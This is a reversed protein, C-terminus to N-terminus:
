ERLIRAANEGLIAAVEGKTFSIGAEDVIDPPETFAKVWSPQGGSFLRLAPWDSGFLIRSSGISDIMRRLPLYFEDVPHHHTRPQWGALDLYVNPKTSAINLAEEWWCFGAHALILLLDPFDNAVEDLYIPYCYKSYLPIIEPGTHVVVPISLEDAKAYLAYCSDDNPYFGAAPILKLGRMGWERVGKELLDVADPRRPDVGVFSILRSNSKQAIESYIRNIETISYKAEGIKGVLGCDLVDIWSQDIGAKDMDKILIEGTEDWFDHL